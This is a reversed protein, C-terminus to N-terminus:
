RVSRKAEINHRLACEEKLLAEERKVEKAIAYTACGSLSAFVLLFPVIAYKEWFRQPQPKFPKYM